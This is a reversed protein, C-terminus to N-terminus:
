ENDLEKIVEAFKEEDTQLLNRIALYTSIQGQRQAIVTRLEPDTGILKWMLAKIQMECYRTLRSGGATAKLRAILLYDEETLPNVNEGPIIGVIESM